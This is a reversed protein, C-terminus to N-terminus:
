SRAVHTYIQSNIPNIQIESVHATLYLNLPCQRRWMEPHLQNPEKQM